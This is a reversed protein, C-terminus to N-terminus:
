RRVYSLGLFDIEFESALRTICARDYASLVPLDIQPM